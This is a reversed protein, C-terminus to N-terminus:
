KCTNLLRPLEERDGVVQLRLGVDTPGGDVPLIVRDVPDVEKKLPLELDYPLLFHDEPLFSQEGGVARLM